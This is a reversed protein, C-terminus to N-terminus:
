SNKQAQHVWYQAHESLVRYMNLFDNEGGYYPDDVDKLDSRYLHVREKANSNPALQLVDKLNQADMVLILDFNEFDNLNIKRARQKSLDLGFKRATAMSRADPQEGVHYAATGASEVLVDAGKLRAAEMLVGQAM